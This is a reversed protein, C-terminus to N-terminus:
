LKKTRGLDGQQWVRHSEAKESVRKGRM